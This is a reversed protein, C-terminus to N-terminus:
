RVEHSVIALFESKAANAREAIERANEVEMLHAKAVGISVTNAISEVLAIEDPTWLKEYYNQLIMLGISSNAGDTRDFQPTRIAVMSQIGWRQM